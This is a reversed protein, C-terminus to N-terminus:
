DTAKVTKGCLACRVTTRTYIEYEHEGLACVVRFPSRVVKETSDLVDDVLDGLFGM